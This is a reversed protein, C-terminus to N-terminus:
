SKELEIFVNNRDTALSLFEEGWTRKVEPHYIPDKLMKYFKTSCVLILPMGTMRRQGFFSNMTIIDPPSTHGFESFNDVGDIALFRISELHMLYEYNVRRDKDWRAADIFASSKVWKFSLNPNHFASAWAVEKLILTAVLTKGSYRDGAIIVNCGSSARKHIISNNVQDQAMETKPEKFCYALARKKAELFSSVNLRGIVVDGDMIVGTFDSWEKYKLSHPVVEIQEFRFKITAKLQCSCVRNTDNEKICKAGNCISCNLAYWKCWDSYQM